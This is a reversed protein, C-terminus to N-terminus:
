TTSGSANRVWVEIDDIKDADRFGFKRLLYRTKEVNSGMLFLEHILSINERDADECLNEMLCTALGQDEISVSISHIFYEQSTMKSLSLTADAFFSGLKSYSAETKQFSIYVVDSGWDNHRKYADRIEPDPQYIEVEGRSIMQRFVQYCDDSEGSRHLSDEGNIWVFFIVRDGVVPDDEIRFFLRYQQLVDVAKYNLPLDKNFDPNLPNSQVKIIASIANRYRQREKNNGTELRDLEAQLWESLKHRLLSSM